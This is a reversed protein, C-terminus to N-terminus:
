KRGGVYKSGKGNKTYGGVRKSGTRGKTELSLTGSQATLSLAPTAAVPQTSFLGALLLTTLLTKM